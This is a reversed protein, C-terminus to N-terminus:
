ADHREIESLPHRSILGWNGDGKESGRAGIAILHNKTQEENCGIVAALTSLNRWQFAKDELMQRLLKQRACDIDRQPKRKFWELGFSGILTLLSGAIAGIVGVLAIWFKTDSVVKAALLSIEAETM